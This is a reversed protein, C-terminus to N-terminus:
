NIKEFINLNLKPRVEQISGRISNKIAQGDKRMLKILNYLISCKRNLGFTQNKNVKKVATHSFISIIMFNTKYTNMSNKALYKM